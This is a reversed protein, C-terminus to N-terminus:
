ADPFAWLTERIIESVTPHPFIIQRADTVRLHLEMMEAAGWIIEGSYSGLLHVGLVTRHKKHILIKCLGDARDNEAVFRGSYRMSLKQVEYDIGKERCEEETKGVSAVEPQTYIVAPNAHYRMADAKGLMHNVAVEAERYATHALMHHGNVDGVAYVGEVNTRCMLDVPIGGPSHEVGISELGLGATNPRRGISLLVRDAPFERRVGDPAEVFVKGPEVGACKHNLLFTIGQQELQKQLMGSIERDIAGGIHGLMEVVTVEAGVAAYYAAMELGIVGGGVVTLKGPIETLDLIERSTLVFSGLHERVGPIPPVIPSSGTAILLRSGEYLDGGAMVQFRGEERGQILAEEPVVTVGYEKLKGRVGAVLTRVVKNKRKIVAGQDLKVGECTVGYAAGHLAQRYHKASSLLAKSPICGENLCVGGLARKEFLVTKLGGRAAREAALYGGPGGGIVMLDFVMFHDEWINKKLIVDPLIKIQSTTVM